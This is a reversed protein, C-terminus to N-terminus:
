RYGDVVDAPLGGQIQNVVRAIRGAAEDIEAETTSIGLSFRV